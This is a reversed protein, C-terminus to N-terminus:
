VTKYRKFYQERRETEKRKAEIYLSGLWWILPANLIIFAINICILFFPMYMYYSALVFGFEVVSLIILTAMLKLRGQQTRTLRAVRQQETERKISLYTEM